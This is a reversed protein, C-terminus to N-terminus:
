ILVKPPKKQACRVENSRVKSDVATRRDTKGDTLRTYQSLVFAGLSFLEIHSIPLQRRAKWHALSSCRVNGSFGGIRNSHM